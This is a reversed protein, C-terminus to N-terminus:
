EDEIIATAHIVAPDKTGWKNRINALMGRAGEYDGERFMRYMEDLQSTGEADREDTDFAERLIANTDRGEVRVVREVLRANQLRRVQDNRVSSLTQPSHTSVVFQLKPFANRLGDLVTRQWKPHLHLDVEDIMAVGEVELPAVVGSSANLLMARRAIDGVVGLFVHYGDSLDDWTSVHGGHFRVCPVKLSPEFWVEKIEPVARKMADYVATDFGRPPEARRMRLSDADAEIRLWEILAADSTMPDLAEEYGAWRETFTRASSGRRARVAFRAPGYWAILPWSADVERATSVADTVEKSLTVKGSRAKSTGSTSWTLSDRSAITAACRLGCTPTQDWLGTNSPIRRADRRGDLTLEGRQRPQLQTLAMALATLLTTKGGGNEAFIVTLQPDLRLTLSDFCRFNTLSLEDIRLTTM